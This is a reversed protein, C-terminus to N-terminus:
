SAQTRLCADIITRNEKTSTDPTLGANTSKVITPGSEIPHSCDAFGDAHMSPSTKARFTVITEAIVAPIAISMETIKVRPAAVYGCATGPVYASRAWDTNPKVISVATTM